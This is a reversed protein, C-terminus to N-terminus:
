LWEKLYLECLCLLRYLFVFPVRYLIILEQQVVSNCNHLRVFAIARYLTRVALFIVMCTRVTFQARHTYHTYNTSLKMVGCVAWRAFIVAVRFLSDVATAFVSSVISTAWNILLQITADM